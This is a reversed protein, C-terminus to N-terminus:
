EHELNGAPPPRDQEDFILKMVWLDASRNGPQSLTAFAQLRKGELRIEWCAPQQSLSFYLGTDWQQVSGRNRSVPGEYDLYERRHAELPEATITQIPPFLPIASDASPWNCPEGQPEELLRWAPILPGPIELLFDWHLFPFDHTLITFRPM